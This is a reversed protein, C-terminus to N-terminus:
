KKKKREMKMFNATAGSNSSLKPNKDPHGDNKTQSPAMGIEPRNRPTIPTREDTQMPM